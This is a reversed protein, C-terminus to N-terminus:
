GPHTKSRPGSLAQSALTGITTTLSSEFERSVDVHGTRAHAFEHLLTGAFSSLRRLQARQIIVRGTKPEWLGAPDMGETVSPRMTESVMVAKVQRPVGGDLRAIERWRGFVAREASTLADEPVFEYEVSASWDNAFQSLSQLPKGTLDHVGTLKAAISTPVTIIERGDEIARDVMEKDRVLQDATVFVVPRSSNVIQCARLGVDSWTRVEDHSTGDALGGLDEVLVDAVASSEAALLMAKVRDSYASRGVNTRERNLAKRMPRTLSTVNYSFAFDPEEAVVLGKVYIRAPAGARRRLIHGIKTTELIQENSFALFFRRATEIDRDAIGNLVVETGVMRTQPSPSVQAHLTTVDSFGAKSRHSLTIEGHRSRVTVGVDRRDLVALADKLGVGFRGIVERERARKEPSENQTLHTHRVGRGFDRIRWTGRAIREIEVTPTGTLAQEDIANAILERVAHSVSWGELVTEINLDFHRVARGVRTMNLLPRRGANERLAGDHAGPSPAVL